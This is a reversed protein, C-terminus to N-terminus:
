SKPISNSDISKKKIMLSEDVVESYDTSWLDDLSYNNKIYWFNNKLKNFCNEFSIIRYHYCVLYANQIDRERLQSHTNGLERKQAYVSDVNITKKNKLNFPHHTDLLKFKSTKFISKVEISDYRCRFKEIGHLHRKDHNWRHTNELLISEPNKIKQNCSMMVWPVMVCDVKKFTTELEQRITRNNNKKTTIFEDVDVYIIWKYNDKIKKYLYQAYNSSIIEQRYIISIRSDHINSYISKDNSDDDIIYIYDVGQSLYYDCFEGIFFEDRCRTILGLFSM